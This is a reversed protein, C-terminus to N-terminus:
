NPIKKGGWKTANQHMFASIIWHQSVRFFRQVEIRFGAETSTSTVTSIHSVESPFACDSVLKLVSDKLHFESHISFPVAAIGPSYEWYLQHLQHLCSQLWFAKPLSVEGPFSPQHLDAKWICTLDLQMWQQCLPGPLHIFMFLTPQYHQTVSVPVAPSHALMCSVLAESECDLHLEAKSCALTLRPTRYPLSLILAVGQEADNRVGETLCM